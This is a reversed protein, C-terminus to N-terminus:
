LGSSELSNERWFTEDSLVAETHYQHTVFMGSRLGVGVCCASRMALLCLVTLDFLFQYIHCVIASHIIQVFNWM